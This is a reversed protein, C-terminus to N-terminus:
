DQLEVYFVLDSKAPIMPPRGAAGYAMDFPIFLTAKTGRPLRQFAVDWGQIAGGRDLTFSFPVGKKFSSDFLTGDSKLVGYYHATVNDGPQGIAGTGEEHIVYELGTEDKIIKDDLAGSKYDALVGETIGAVEQLRGAILQREAALRDSDEKLKTEYSAKDKIDRLVIEYRIEKFKKIESTASPISDIPVVMTASDGIAMNSLVEVIPNPQQIPADVEPIQIVPMQDLNRMSQLVEGTDSTIDMEFYAYETPQPKPTSNSTHITFNYGETTVMPKAEQCSSFAMCIIALFTFFPISSRIM